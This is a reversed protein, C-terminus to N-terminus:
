ERIQGHQTIREHVVLTITCCYSHMLSMTGHLASCSLLICGMISWPKKHVALMVCILFAVVLVSLTCKFRSVHHNLESQYRPSGRNSKGGSPMGFVSQIFVEVTRRQGQM